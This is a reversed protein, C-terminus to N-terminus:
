CKETNSEIICVGHTNSFLGKNIYFTVRPPPDFFALLGERLSESCKFVASLLYYCM